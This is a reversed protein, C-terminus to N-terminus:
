ISILLEELSSIIRDPKQGITDFPREKRNVWITHFGFFKAGSVDWPNSSIFTMENKPKKFIDVAYQYVTPKPKFEKIADASLIFDFKSSINNNDLVPILMQLNANSLVALQHGNELENLTSSVDDFLTLKDYNQTLLYENETSLDVKHYATAFRLAEITVVKFSQYSGMLTRLWSYELQKQRWTLGIEKGLSGYIASLLADIRNLNLLTGYADFVIVKNLETSM